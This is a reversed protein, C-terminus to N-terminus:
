RRRRCSFFSLILLLGTSILAPWEGLKVYPTPAGTTGRLQFTAADAGKANLMTEIQGKENIVASQGTNNVQVLPRAVEIARLRSMDLHQGIVASSFWGLNATVVLIDPLEQNSFARLLNGYLNEYCILVGVSVGDLKMLPQTRAGPTLDSM